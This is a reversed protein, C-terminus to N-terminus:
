PAICYCCVIFRDRFVIHGGAAREVSTFTKELLGRFRQYQSTFEALDNAQLSDLTNAKIVFSEQVNNLAELHFLGEIYDQQDVNDRARTQLYWETLPAGNYTRCFADYRIMIQRLTILNVVVFCYVELIENGVNSPSYDTSSTTTTSSDMHAVLKALGVLQTSYFTAAKSIQAELLECFDSREM